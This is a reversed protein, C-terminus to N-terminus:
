GGVGDPIANGNGAGLGVAGQLLAVVQAGDGAHAAETLAQYTRELAEGHLDPALTEFVKPHRTPTAHEDTTTLEEFLKEGPRAGTFVIDIDQYPRYGSLRIMDEALQAIRVPQGMDLFYVAGPTALAGAQLVLQVAEPITMFYRTMNPDTVTVPGGAAIQEQFLPVVSGRSGLVNGFRVSVFTRPQAGANAGAHVADKVICEAMRKSAGMVSSPNVAKDTSINVFRQVGSAVAAQVLTRTGEINNLVAQEPNAEMLPVHKHAAAHFVVSPQERTFIRALRDSDRVDAIVPQVRAADAASLGRLLHYIGDEANDLALIRQVGVQVLQRVLESGISGGAGTVLVTRGELYGRVPSLDIPVPPRRLLDEISVDRLRSTTVSGALLEYVGPIVQVRLRPNAEAVLAEVRRILAGDASGIALVVQEAVGQRLLDPIRTLAGVVPVGEIRLGHKSPNDDVIAVPEIGAEPHRLMERLVMHGAEGAGVVLTRKGAVALHRRQRRRRLTNRGREFARPAFLLGGSLVLAIPLVSRPFPLVERLVLGLVAELVGVAAVAVAVMGADRFSVMRWAQEHLRFRWIAAVKLPVGLATFWVLGPLTESPIAGDFRLWFALLPALTWLTLDLLFKQTFPSLMM